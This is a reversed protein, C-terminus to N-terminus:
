KPGSTHALFWRYDPNSASVALWRIDLGPVIKRPFAGGTWKKYIAHGDAFSLCAGGNHYTAPVDTFQLVGTTDFSYLGDNISNPHEDLFVYLDAPGPSTIDSARAFYRDPDDHPYITNDDPCYIIGMHGNMSYSRLRQGNKAPVKDSPCHYVRVQSGVCPALLSTLTPIPNTNVDAYYWDEYTACCWTKNTPYGGPANPLLVDQSDEKYVAWGVQLQKLNNICWVTEAKAKASSLAPLLMAALLAIIAIVVLLEILTFGRDTSWSRRM